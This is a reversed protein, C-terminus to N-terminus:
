DILASAITTTLWQINTSSLLFYSYYVSDFNNGFVSNIMQRSDYLVHGVAPLITMSVLNINKKASHKLKSCTVLVINIIYNFPIM